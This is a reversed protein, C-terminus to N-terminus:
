ETVMRYEISAITDNQLIIILMTGAAQYTYATGEQTYGEGYVSVAKDLTDGLALGEPTTLNPDLFYISYIFEKKGDNFATVEFTDYNYVNDTGELACSPVQYTSSADPLTSADFAAGPILEVGSFTFAYPKGSEQAQATDQTEQNKTANTPENQQAGMTIQPIDNPQEQGCAAFCLLMMAALSIAIIKKM